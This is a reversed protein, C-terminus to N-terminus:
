GLDPSITLATNRFDFSIRMRQGPTFGALKLWVDAVQMWPMFPAAAQEPQASGYDPSDRLTASSHARQRSPRPKLQEDAM